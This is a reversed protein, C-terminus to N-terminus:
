KVAGKLEIQKDFEAVILKVAKDKKMVAGLSRKPEVYTIANWYRTNTEEIEGIPTYHEFGNNATGVVQVIFRKNGFKPIDPKIDIKLSEM